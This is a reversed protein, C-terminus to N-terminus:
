CAPLPTPLTHAPDARRPPIGTPQLGEVACAAAHLVLPCIMPRLDVVVVGVMGTLEMGQQGGGAGHAILPDDAGELGVGVGCWPATKGTRPPASAAPHSPAPPFKRRVSCFSMPMEECSRARSIGAGDVAGTQLLHRIRQGRQGLGAVQDQRHPGSINEPGPFLQQFSRSLM